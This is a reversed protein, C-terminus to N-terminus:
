LKSVAILIRRSAQYIARAQVDLWEEHGNPRREGGRTRKLESPTCLRQAIDGYYILSCGGWSYEHWNPAGNLLAREVMIRSKLDDDYICGCRLADNLNDLLEFVYAQVGKDWASRSHRATANLTIKELNTM